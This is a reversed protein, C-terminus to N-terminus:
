ATMMSDAYVAIVAVYAVTNRLMHTEKRLPVTRLAGNWTTECVNKATHM